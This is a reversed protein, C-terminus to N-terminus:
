SIRVMLMLGKMQPFQTTSCLASRIEEDTRPAQGAFQNCSYRASEFGRIM